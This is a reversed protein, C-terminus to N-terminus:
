RRYYCHWKCIWYPSYIKENQHKIFMPHDSNSQKFGFKIMAKHFQDFWARPSQKLGYLAKLTWMGKGKSSEDYFGPPVEM